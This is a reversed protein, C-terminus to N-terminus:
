FSFYVTTEFNLYDDSILNNIIFYVKETHTYIYKYINESSIYPRAIKM